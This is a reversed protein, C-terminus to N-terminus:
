RNGRGLWGLVGVVPLLVIALTWAAKRRAPHRSGFVSTIAWAEVVLILLVIALRM